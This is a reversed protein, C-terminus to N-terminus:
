IIPAFSPLSNTGYVSAPQGISTLTALCTVPILLRTSANPVVFGPLSIITSHGAYLSIMAFPTPAYRLAGIYSMIQFDNLELLYFASALHM